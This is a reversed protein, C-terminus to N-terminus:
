GSKYETREASLKKHEKIILLCLIVWIVVIAINLRAFREVNFALYTTGIFVFLGTLMDGARVFFTDIVTKAKYKEERSTILYLAARCANMLSYDTSNEFAKAWRVVILSAGFALFFYGGLAVLPLVMIAGRVGVWKFIRSVLFLQIIIALINVLFHFGSDLKSISQALAEEYEKEKAEDIQVIKQAERKFINKRIYEGTTNVLNLVLILLAIYLLYRSKFVLRFGGGKKLPKEEEKIQENKATIEGAKYGPKRIERKHIIFTLVVCTGLIAGALLMLPYLGIIDVFFYAISSGIAAGINQGIMIMPFLRKGAEETYLDNAFAWFQAIVMVSFIGIWVYYIPGITSLPTGMLDLVFFVVLNSVFFFTVFTILLQRSVKSALRSFMKNFFIFVFAMVGALYAEAEPSYKALFLGTRLPKLISYSMIVLFINLALLIVTPGEGPHIVTFIRLIKYVFGPPKQGTRIKEEHSSTKM